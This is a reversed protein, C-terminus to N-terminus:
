PAEDVPNLSKSLETVIANVPLVLLLNLLATPLIVLNIAQNLDLPNASLWLFLLESGLVLLTGGLAAAFLTLLPIRWLRSELFQALAAASGYAALSVWTPIASSLDMMLGALLGWRWDAGSHKQLMWTLLVLLVLNPTGALLNFRWALTVQLASAGLLFLSGLLITM